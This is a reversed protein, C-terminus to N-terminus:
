SGLGARVTRLAQACAGALSADPRDTAARLAVTSSALRDAVADLFGDARGWPGAVLIAEPDLLTAVSHLVGAVAAVIGERCRRDATAGGTLIEVVRPVDIADTGEHLLDWAAFSELLSMSRGGPGVTVVYALEGGLGRHGHVLRGSEVIAGGLGSGLYCLVFDSLDRATGDHREALAAWNVDNDVSVPGISLGDLVEGPSLEDLLFPSRSQRVARGSRQEVPAALSIACSRVPGPAAATAAAVAERLAPGLEAADIPARVPYETEALPAGALDLTRVVIGEPGASVGMAIALHPELTLYTGAPGRKGVQRGSETVVEADVLRRVSESITPKSIGTRAAIEARTLPQAALLQEVVHRNTLQRLLELSPLQREAAPEVAPELV